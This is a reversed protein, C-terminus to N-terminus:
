SPRPYSLAFARRRFPKCIAKAISVFV